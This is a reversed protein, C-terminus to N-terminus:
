GERGEPKGTGRIQKEKWSSPRKSTSNRSCVRYTPDQPAPTTLPLPSGGKPLPLALEGLSAGRGPLPPPLLAQGRASLRVNSGSSIQTPSSYHILGLSPSLDAAVPAMLLWSLLVGQLASMHWLTQEGGGPEKQFSGALRWCSWVQSITLIHKGMFVRFLPFKEQM